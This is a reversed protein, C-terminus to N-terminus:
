LIMLVIAYRVGHGPGCRINNIRLNKSGGGISICDDGTGITCHEINVDTSEGIHIGDTNPSHGPAEIKLNALRAGQVGDLVIHMRPNDKFRLGSLRLNKSNTIRLAQM